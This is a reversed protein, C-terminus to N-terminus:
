LIQGNIDLTVLPRSIPVKKGVRYGEHYSEGVCRVKTKQTQINSYKSALFDHAIQNKCVVLANSTINKNQETKRDKLRVNIASVFGLRWDYRSTVEIDKYDYNIVFHHLYEFTQKAITVDPEIGLFLLSTGQSHKKRLAKVDFGAAIVTHLIKIWSPLRIKFFEFTHESCNEFGEEKIQVESISMDYKQLIEQARLAAVKAEEPSENQRAMTFLKQVKEILRQREENM